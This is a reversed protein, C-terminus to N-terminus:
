GIFGKLIIINKVKYGHARIALEDYIKAAEKETKIGGKYIKKNHAM